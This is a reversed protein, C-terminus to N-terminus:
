STRESLFVRRFRPGVFCVGVLFERGKEAPKVRVVRAKSVFDNELERLPTPRPIIIEVEMDMKFIRVTLFSAGTRSVDYSHATDEFRTGEADVGRVLLPLGVEIRRQLRRDAATGAKGSPTM